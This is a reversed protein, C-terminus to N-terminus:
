FNYILSLGFRKIYPDFRPILNLKKDEFRKNYHKVSNPVSAIDIIAMLSVATVGVVAITNAENWHEQQNEGLCFYGLCGLVAIRGGIWLCGTSWQHAYFHGISPGILLGGAIPIAGWGWLGTLLGAGAPIVTSCISYALGTTVSKYKYPNQEVIMSDPIQSYMVDPIMLKLSFIALIMAM